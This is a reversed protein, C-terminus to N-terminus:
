NYPGSIIYLSPFPDLSVTQFIDHTIITALYFLVSSIRNPHPKFETGRAFLMDFIMEPEPQNPNQYSKAPTSRAYATNAAGMKPDHINNGSGDAARYKHEEALTTMPPHDIGNWLQHILGNELRKGKVTNQPLKAFLQILHELLLENDNIQGEVASSFFNVLTDFDEFGLKKVDQLLNGPEPQESTSGVAPEPQQPVPSISRQVLQRAAALREALAPQNRPFQEQPTTHSM